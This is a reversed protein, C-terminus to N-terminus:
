NSERKTCRLTDAVACVILTNSGEVVIRLENGVPGWKQTLYLQSDPLPLDAALVRARPIDAVTLRRECGDDRCTLFAILGASKNVAPQGWVDLSTDRGDLRYSIGCVSPPPEFDGTWRMTVTAVPLKVSTSWHKADPLGCPDAVAPQLWATACLLFAASAKM